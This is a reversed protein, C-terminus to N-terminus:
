RFTNALLTEVFSQAYHQSYYIADTSIHAGILNCAFFLIVQIARTFNREGLAEILISPSTGPLM